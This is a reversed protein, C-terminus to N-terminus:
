GLLPVYVNLSLPPVVFREIAGSGPVRVSNPLPSIATPSIALRRNKAFPELDRLQSHDTESRSLAGEPPATCANGSQFQALCFEEGCSVKSGISYELERPFVADPRPKLNEKGLCNDSYKSWQASRMQPTDVPISVEALREM